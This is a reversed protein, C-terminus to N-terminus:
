LMSGHLKVHAEVLRTQPGGKHLNSKSSCKEADGLTPSEPEGKVEKVQSM